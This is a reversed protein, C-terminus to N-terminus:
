GRDKCPHGGRDAAELDVALLEGLLLDVADVLDAMFRKAAVTTAGVPRQRGFQEARAQAAVDGGRHLPHDAHLMSLRDDRVVAHAPAPHRPRHISFSLKSNPTQLKSNLRETVPM